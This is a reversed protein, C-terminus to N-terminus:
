FWAAVLGLSYFVVNPECVRSLRRISARVDQSFQPPLLHQLVGVVWCLRVLSYMCASLSGWADSIFGHMSVPAFVLWAEFGACAFACQHSWKSVSWHRTILFCAFM